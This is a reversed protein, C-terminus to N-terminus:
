SRPEGESKNESKDSPAAADDPYARNVLLKAGGILWWAVCLQVGVFILSVFNGVFVVPLNNVGHYLFVLGLVRVCLEFIAKPKM